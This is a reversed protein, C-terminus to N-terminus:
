QQERVGSKAAASESHHHLHWLPELDCQVLQLRFRCLLILQLSTVCNQLHDAACFVEPSCLYRCSTSQRQSHPSCITFAQTHVASRSHRLTPRLAYMVSNSCCLMCSQTHVASCAHKLTFRLAHMGSHSGCLMFAQTHVASCAYRHTLRLAHM